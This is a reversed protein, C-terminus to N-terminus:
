VSMGWTARPQTLAVPGLPAHCGQQIHEQRASHRRFVEREHFLDVLQMRFQWKRTRPPQALEQRDIPAFNALTMHLRQHAPDPDHHKM